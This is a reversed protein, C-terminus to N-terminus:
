QLTSYSLTSTQRVAHISTKQLKYNDSQLFLELISLDIAKLTEFWGKDFVTTFFWFL